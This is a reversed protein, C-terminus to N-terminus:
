AANDLIPAAAAARVGYNAQIACYEAVRATDVYIRVETAKTWKFRIVHAGSNSRKVSDKTTLYDNWELTVWTNWPPGNVVVNTLEFRIDPFVEFLRKFEAPLTTWFADLPGAASRKFIAM